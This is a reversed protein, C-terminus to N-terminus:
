KQEKKITAVIRAIDRKVGLGQKIKNNPKKFRSTTKGM